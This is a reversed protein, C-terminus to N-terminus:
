LPPVQGLPAVFDPLQATANAALVVALVAALIGAPASRRM